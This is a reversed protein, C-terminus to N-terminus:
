QIALIEIEFTLEEGALPHNADLLVQTESVETITVVTMEEDSKGVQLQMGVIPEIDEPLQEIPVQVVLEQNYEGYAEAAPIKFTKTEGVVMGEAATEFAPLLMGGGQVFELPERERSSDFVTGDELTGTYHVQVQSGEQVNAM